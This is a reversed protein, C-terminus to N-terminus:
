STSTSTRLLLSFGVQGSQPEARSSFSKDTGAAGDIAEPESGTQPGLSGPVQPRGCHPVPRQMNPSYSQYELGGIACDELRELGTGGAVLGTLLQLTPRRLASRRGKNQDKVDPMRKSASTPMQSAVRLAAEDAGISKCAAV